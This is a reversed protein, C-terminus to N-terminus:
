AVPVGRRHPLAPRTSLNVKYITGASNTLGGQKTVGWLNGSSDSVLSGDPKYASAGFEVVTILAGSSANVKFFVTGNDGKGGSETTGWFFGVGDSVLGARPFFGKHPTDAFTFEALSTLVGTSANLKFVTGAVSGSGSDYGQYTTGWFSGTGDSVLEASPHSGRNSAGQDTFVVVTTLVGSSTDVKFITGSGGAYGANPGGDRTTGWLFGAGDNVLGGIPSAGKNVAGFEVVTSFAGTDINVKFVTGYNSAGGESTTGWFHGVGDNLLVGMAMAGKKAGTQGTFEAVTTIVGTTANVKFVTGCDSAGARTTTGWFNGQGDAALGAYLSTGISDTLTAPNFQGVTTLVGTSVQVKFITGSTVYFNNDLFYGGGSQTTGWPYGAGDNVLGGQPWFGENTPGNGLQTVNTFSLVTQWNSGDAKVKYITGGGFVGGNETVGWFYGDGGAVLAGYGPNQPPVTFSTVLEHAPPPPTGTGTLTLDFTAAGTDNSLVRLTTTRIGLATPSFAM